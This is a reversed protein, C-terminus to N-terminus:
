ADRKVILILAVVLAIAVYAVMLLFGVSPSLQDPQRVVAGVSNGLIFEPTYRTLHGSFRSLILPVLFMIGLFTVVAGATHRVITGVAVGLLGLLALFAGSMLLARLVGPHGLAATPAGGGSLVAYGAVYCAFTLAAGVVLTIAGIVLVKAAFFLPRRPAASLSSRITGTAYEGTVALVGLVGIALTGLLLGTLSQNTPDYGNQYWLTPKHTDSHTALVTVGVTGVFTILLTWLTSRLSTLKILESRTVQKLGYRRGAPADLPVTPLASVTTM